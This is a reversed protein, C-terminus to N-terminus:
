LNPGVIASNPPQPTKLLYPRTLPLQTMLPISELSVASNEEEARRQKRAAILYAAGWWLLYETESGFAIIGVTQFRHFWLWCM